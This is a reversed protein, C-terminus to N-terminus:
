RLDSIFGCVSKLPLTRRLGCGVAPYTPVQVWHFYTMSKGDLIVSPSRVSLSGFSVAVREVGIAYEQEAAGIWVIDDDMLAIIPEVDNECYHKHMMFSTLEIIQRESPSREDQIFM